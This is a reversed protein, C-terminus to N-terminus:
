EKTIVLECYDDGESLLNPFELKLGPFASVRGHDGYRALRCLRAIEEPACGIKKWLEVLACYSFKLVGKNDNSEVVEM